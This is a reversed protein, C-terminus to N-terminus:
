KGCFYDYTLWWIASTPGYTIVSIFFGKYFGRFGSERFICFIIGRADRANAEASIISQQCHKQSHTSRKTLQQSGVCISRVQLHQSVIDIPVVITQAIASAIGGAVFAKKQNSEFSYKDALIHRIGEYTTLFTMQSLMSCNHVLFGSYLGRPGDSKAIKVLADFTGSYVERSKQVQMRTKILTLPYLVSRVAIGSLAVLPFYKTKDLMHYEIVPFASKLVTQYEDDDITLDISQPM